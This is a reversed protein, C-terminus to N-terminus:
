KEYKSKNPYRKAIYRKFYKNLSLDGISFLDPVTELVKEWNLHPHSIKNDPRMEGHIKLSNCYLSKLVFGWKLNQWTYSDVVECLKQRNYRIPKHIDFNKTALDRMKLANLTTECHKAYNNGATKITYLLDCKYLYPYTTAEVNQVFFFDDNMFLIEETLSKDKCAKYVKRMINIAKNDSTDDCPIHIVNDNLFDPKRGVIVVHRVNKLYQELSRLSYLLENDHWLKDGGVIYVVDIM